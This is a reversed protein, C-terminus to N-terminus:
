MLAIVQNTEMFDTYETFKHLLNFIPTYLSLPLSLSPPSLFLLRYQANEGSSVM